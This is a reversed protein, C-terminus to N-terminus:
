SRTAVNGILELLPKVKVPKILIAAAGLDAAKERAHADASVVIVPISGYEPHNRQLARFEYGNMVPMMLDLVIVDPKTSGDLVRLAQQGDEAALVRYGANDLIDVLSERIDPDDEVVLVCTM